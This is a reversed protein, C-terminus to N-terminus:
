ERPKLTRTKTGAVPGDEKVPDKDETTEQDGQMNSYLYATKLVAEMKRFKATEIDAQLTEYRAQLELYPIEEKYFNMMNKRMEAIEEPTYQKQEQVPTTNSDEANQM